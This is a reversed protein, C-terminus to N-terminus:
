ATGRSSAESPKIWLVQRPEVREFNHQNVYVHSHSTYYTWIDMGSTTFYQLHRFLYGIKNLYFSARHKGIKNIKSM